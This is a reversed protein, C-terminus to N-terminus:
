SLRTEQHIITNNQKKINWVFKGVVGACPNQVWLRDSNIPPPLVVLDYPIHM